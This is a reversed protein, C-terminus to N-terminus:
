LFTNERPLAIGCSPCKNHMSTDNMRQCRVCRALVRFSHARWLSHTGGLTFNDTMVQRIAERHPGQQENLRRPGHEDSWASVTFMRNGAVLLTAGLFGPVSRLQTALDPGRKGIEQLEEESQTVITTVGLYAPEGDSASRVHIGFGPVLYDPLGEPPFNSM